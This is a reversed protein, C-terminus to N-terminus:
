ITRDQLPMWSDLFRSIWVDLAGNTERGNKINVASLVRRRWRSSARRENAEREGRARQAGNIATSREGRAQHGFGPAQESWDLLWGALCVLLAPSPPGAVWSGHPFSARPRFLRRPALARSGLGSLRANRMQPLGASSRGSTKV